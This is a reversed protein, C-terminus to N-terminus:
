DRMGRRRSGSAIPGAIRSGSATYANRCRRTRPAMQYPVSRRAMASQLAAYAQSSTAGSKSWFSSASRMLYMPTVASGTAQIPKTSSKTARSRPAMRRTPRRNTTTATATSTAAHVLWHCSSKQPRRASSGAPSRYVNVPRPGM